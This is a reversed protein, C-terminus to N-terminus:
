KIDLVDINFEPETEYILRRKRSHGFMYKCHDEFDIVIANEKGPYPRLTRGVRQLARTQSMGSGALILTDLPRCDIGEDFIVSSTTISAERNRMKDLHAKRKKSSHKGHLFVNGDIINELIEGHAIHRCLIPVVRGQEAMNTAVKRIIENRMANEVIAEKYAVDYSHFQRGRMNKIPVFYLDPKVLYGKKILFSANIDCITRGFCADILIDDGSDRWPTASQGFKYRCELSFDSIVQCSESRVHQCEDIIIGKASIILNRIDERKVKPISKEKTGNNADDDYKKYRHGCSRIATQVTMVNIDRIDCKGDGIVGVDLSSGHDLIFRSLENKAQRMLDKSTVYFIFPSVNLRAIISAAIATKGGGTAIKLIGRERNLSDEVAKSQYDRNELEPSISLSMSTSKSVQERKDYIKYPVYNEKFYKIANSILGTPFHTGDKKISCRCHKKSYCVTTITGDWDKAWAKTKPNDQLQRLRFVSDQPIYGLAKKLNQYIESELRGSIFTTTNNVILSIEDHM